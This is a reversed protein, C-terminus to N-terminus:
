PRFRRPRMLVFYINSAYESKFFASQIDTTVSKEKLTVETEFGFASMENQVASLYSSLNFDKNPVLLSFDLDESFRNLQYLIRLATGGYLLM